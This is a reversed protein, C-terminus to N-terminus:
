CRLDGSGMVVVVLRMMQVREADGGGQLGEQGTVVHGGVWEVWGIGITGIDDWQVGRGV